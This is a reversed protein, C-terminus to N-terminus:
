EDLKKNLKILGKIIISCVLYVLYCIGVFILLKVLIYLLGFLVVFEM